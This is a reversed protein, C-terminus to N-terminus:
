NLIQEKEVFGQVQQQFAYQALDFNYPTSMSQSKANGALDYATATVTYDGLGSWTWEYPSQTDTYQLQDDLSFEVRSIGSAEDSAQATFKVDLLDLQEKTLTISPLTQDIKLDTTHTTEANGVLDVSYYSITNTGDLSILFPITYATWDGANIKFITSLVGSESDTANLTVTVPSKYWWNDGTTGNFFISTSPPSIDLITTFRYWKKTFRGSGSADTANVWVKYPTSYALESLSLSKTGNTESSGSISQGNSCQITWTFRDGEPDNIPIGWTLSLPINTSGNAPTPTGFVPPLNFKTTFTYWKRTYQGSGGSDTANVWVKYSTGYSLGSLVLTKTGNSAESGSSGQGNSCQITWSFPNAEPDSILISWTLGLPNGASGNLPSPTGFVPPSNAKTTFVWLAGASSAGSDDWAVIKWYFSTLYNMTGPDYTTASQNGIVKPPTSSTGFYVDYTVTDGPNPDGGIWSLDSYIPVNIAGDGPSPSSPPNPPVNEGTVQATTVSPLYNQKTVTVSINGGTEPTITFTVNGGANTLGREYIEDGKWLCVYANEVNSGTATEVHVTFSSSGLPVVSPHDVVFTSPNTTWVPLEPDGLLTLETYCYQYYDDGPYEQYGDNKHDSFAAGLHYLNEQFLSKFFHIDYGMSLTDYTFYEYWGYRSNGIFAIGGGNTNQVFHEAICDSVDYAAPDCGMSYLISQKNGNTLADMDDSYILWDHNIYGTGMCDSNSHDAHNVINQGANLANIVNTRHNGTQNDYVTTVTWGAPIYTNKINVKCQQAHTWSDLDFGFFGANQAYNTLPPNTEYTLVKYIFNEIGGTDNGTDTVSARGINVECVWDNDFDAYYTDNPVPDPDVGSFTRYHCPVVDVDGGLLVYTTGWTSYADQVFAKIKQIDTGSYGGSNYIWDTTVITAPVGKQTKWDALPQFADVWSDQTIIVYDYEGPGVGLPQPDPSPHLAVDEPNIVMNEIMQQYQDHESESLHAPLYDGYRYGRIGEICFTISTTLMLKRQIPRYHLPYVSVSVMSQGALDTQGGLVVRSSPYSRLSAYTIRDPRVPSSSPTTEGVPLPLQTPFIRYTGPLSQEQFTLVHIATAKMDPPLAIMIHQTPLLPKGPEGLSSCGDMTVIDYGVLTAFSLDTKAYRITYELTFGDASGTDKEFVPAETPLSIVAPRSTVATSITAGFMTLIVIMLFFEQVKKQLKKKM